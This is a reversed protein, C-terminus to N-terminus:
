ARAISTIDRAELVHKSEGYRAVHIMARGLEASTMVQNPFFRKMLPYLPAVVIYLQRYLRTKSQVGDVPQIYGPRLVYCARFPLSLLANETKGKVRAWMMRGRETSDTGAGSIYLFTMAPNQRVLVQAAALTLDYTLRSYRGEAMGASSVGLCFFCTDYGTLADEIPGFNYFDSHVIERVKDNKVGSTNRVVLLVMEVGADHLCVRLVGQGVMGTGGFLIVKM